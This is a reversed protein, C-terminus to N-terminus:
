FGSIRNGELFIAAIRSTVRLFPHLEIDWLVIIDLKLDARTNEAYKQPV